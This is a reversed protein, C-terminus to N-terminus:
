RRRRLAQEVEREAAERRLVDRKDYHKRGRAVAIEVKARGNRFYIRLPVLTFGKEIQRGFVRDIERRKLLLKRIREPDHQHHKGAAPYPGIHLNHLWVEGDQIAAYADKLNANGLRLSKVESGLLVIGAEYTDLIEYDKRARRNNAVAKLKEAM